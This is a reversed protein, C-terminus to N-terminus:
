RYIAKRLYDEAITIVNNALWYLVLGAATKAFIVTFVVSMFLMIVRQKGDQSPTMMQQWIMTIGMLIPLIYFPDKSSLDVIWGYFPAQYLDLYNGLLKFLAFLVPMQVLMPLCGVMPTSMALNHERHFKILEEQQQKMDHRFKLRIKQITPQYKQYIELKRRSYISLPVLPLRLVLALGIIALGYNGLVGFLFELLKLLLKCLWSLWGFSMLSDLRDDVAVLQDSVKPGMYFSLTWSQADKIEGSELFVVAEKKIRDAPTKAPIVVPKVYSRQVFQTADGILTHVFYKDEAGFMVNQINWPWKVGAAKDLEYQELANKQMDLWVVNIADDDLEKVQPAPFLLRMHMPRVDSIVPEVALKIDIKYTDHYITYIKKIIWQETTAQYGVETVKAEGDGKDEKHSLSYSLPATEDLALLFCSKQMDNTPALSGLPAGNKGTHEKFDLSRLVAGQSSFSAKMYPTEVLTLAEAQSGTFVVDFNLPRDFGQAAVVKVPGAQVAAQGPAAAVPGGAQTNQQSNRGFFWQFGWVTALSLGAVLFFKKDLM